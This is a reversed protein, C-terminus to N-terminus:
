KFKKLVTFIQSGEFFGNGHVFHEQAAQRRVGDKTHILVKANKQLVSSIYAIFGYM